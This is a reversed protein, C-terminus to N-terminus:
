QAAGPAPAVAGASAENSPGAAGAPSGTVEVTYRKMMARVAAARQEAMTADIWDALVVDGIKELDAPQSPRDYKARNKAFWERVAKPDVTPPRLSAEIMNRVKSIVRSRILPDGKDLAMAIGERYLVEDELWERQDVSASVRITHPDDTRAAILHDAAFLIAGLVIFHLLPERLLKPVAM